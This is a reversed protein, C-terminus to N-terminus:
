IGISEKIKDTAVTPLTVRWVLAQNDVNSSANYPQGVAMGDTTLFDNDALTFLFYDHKADDDFCPALALSEWKSAILTQDVSGGNHLGFRGLQTSNIYQVFTQYVTPTISPDLVGGPAAPNAPSDFKTGAINTAESIDILDASKYKSLPDSNGGGNGDRALVLFQHDNLWLLESQAFTSPKSSQPLPVIYEAELKINNVNNVNYKLLRTYRNTAKNGGGDQMAASQLLVYLKDGSPSTTLGEFGQNASRGTTPNISATFNTTGNQQVSSNRIIEVCNKENLFRVEV